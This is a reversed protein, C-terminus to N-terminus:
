NSHQKIDNITDLIIKCHTYPHLPKWKSQLRMKWGLKIKWQNIRYRITQLGGKPKSYHDLQIQKIEPYLHEYKQTDSITVIDYHEKFVLKFIFKWNLTFSMLFGRAGHYKWLHNKIMADIKYIKNAVSKSYKCRISDLFMCQYLTNTRIQDENMASWMQNCFALLIYIDSGSFALVDKQTLFSFQSLKLALAM